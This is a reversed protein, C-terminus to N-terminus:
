IRSLRTYKGERQHHLLFLSFSNMKGEM